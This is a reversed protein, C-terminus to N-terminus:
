LSLYVASLIIGFSLGGLHARWGVGPLFNMVLNMLITQIMASSRGIASLGYVKAYIVLMAGMLGYLGSSLGGSVNRSRGNQYQIFNGTIISGALLIAYWLHGFMSEMSPGMQWLVWLNMMLHWIGFHVFGATLFRWYEHNQEIRPSYLAGAEVAASMPDNGSMLSNKYLYDAIASVIAFMTVFNRLM